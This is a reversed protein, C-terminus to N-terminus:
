LVGNFLPNDSGSVEIHYGNVFNNATARQVVYTLTDPVNANITEPTNLGGHIEVGVNATADGGEGDSVTYTFSDM